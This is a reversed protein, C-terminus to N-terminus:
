KEKTSAALAAVIDLNFRAQMNNPDLRLAMALAERALEDDGHALQAVGLNIWARASDPARLTAEKWLTVPHTWVSVRWECLAIGLLIVLAAVANAYRPHAVSARRAMWEGLAISPGIWALYLSGEAIPDSKAIFSHSVLMALLPWLLGLTMFPRHAHQHIATAIMMVVALSGLLMATTTVQLDHEVSLAWPRFWLTLTIPLAVLNHELSDLPSRLSLSFSLLERYRPSFLLLSAAMAVSAVAYPAVRKLSSKWDGQVPRTREWLLLLAPFILATEKCACACLFLITTWLTSAKGGREYTLMAAVVLAVALGTSRGSVYAVVAANAPQLAFCVGAFAAARSNATRLQVLKAVGAATLVHLLLNILLWGGAWEGFLGASLTYSVRTLPRIGTALRHLFESWHHSAPDQLINAFDDYQFSGSVVAGWAIAAFLAPAAWGVQSRFSWTLSLAM